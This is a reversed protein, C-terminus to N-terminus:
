DIYMKYLLESGGFYLLVPGGTLNIKEEDYWSSHFHYVKPVRRYSKGTLALAGVLPNHVHAIWRGGDNLYHKLRKRIARWLRVPNKSVM